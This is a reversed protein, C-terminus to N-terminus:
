LKKNLITNTLCAFVQNLKDRSTFKGMLQITFRGIRDIIAVTFWYGPVNSCLAILTQARAIKYVEELASM